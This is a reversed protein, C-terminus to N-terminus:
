KIVLRSTEGEATKVIYVGKSINNLQIYQTQKEAHILRGTMDYIEVDAKKNLFIEDGNNPNPYLRESIALELPALM